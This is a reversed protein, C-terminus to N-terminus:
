LGVPFPFQNCTPSFARYYATRQRKQQKDLRYMANVGIEVVPFLTLQTACSCASWIVTYDVVHTDIMQPDDVAPIQEGISGIPDYHDNNTDNLNTNNTLYSRYARYWPHPIQGESVIATNPPPVCLNM